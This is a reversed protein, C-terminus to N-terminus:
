PPFFLGEPTHTCDVLRANPGTSFCVGRGQKMRGYSGDMSCVERKEEINGYFAL